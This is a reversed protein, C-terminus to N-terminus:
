RELEKRLIEDWMKRKERHRVLANVSAAKVLEKLKRFRKYRLRKM